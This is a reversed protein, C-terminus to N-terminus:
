RRMQRRLLDAAMLAMILGLILAKPADEAIGGYVAFSALLLGIGGVVWRSLM